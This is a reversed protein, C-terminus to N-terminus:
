QLQNLINEVEKIMEEMKPILPEGHINTGDSYSIQFSFGVKQEFDNVSRAPKKICFIETGDTLPFSPAGAKIAIPMEPIDLEPNMSKMFFSPDIIVSEQASGAIILERHKDIIDLHHLEWLLPNGNKYPKLAIVKQIHNLSLGELRSPYIKEIESMNEAFLFANGRTVINGNSIVLESIRLDLASHLNHILDGIILSLEIAPVPKNIKVRYVLDGAEDECIANFPVSSHYEHITKALDSFHKKARNLKAIASM